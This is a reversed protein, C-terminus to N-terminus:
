ENTKERTYVGDPYHKDAYYNRYFEANRDGLIVAVIREGSMGPKAKDVYVEVVEYWKEVPDEEKIGLRKQMVKKMHAVTYVGDASLFDLNDIYFM